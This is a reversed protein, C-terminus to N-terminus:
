TREDQGGTIPNTTQKNTPIPPAGLLGWRSKRVSYSVEGDAVGHVEAVVDALHELSLTGRPDGGKTVHVSFAVRRGQARMEELDVPQLAAATWSDILLSRYGSALSWSWSSAVHVDEAAVEVRRVLARFTASYGEESAVYLCPRFVEAALQVLLTSKGAGPPGALMLVIGGGDWEGLLPRWREPAVPRAQAEAYLSALTRVPAGDHHPVLGRRRVKPGWTGYRGCMPCYTGRDVAESGCGCCVFLGM